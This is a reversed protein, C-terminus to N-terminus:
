TGFSLNYFISPEDLGGESQTSWLHCPAYSIFRWSIMLSFAIEVSCPKFVFNEHSGPELRSNLHGKKVYSYNDMPNGIDGFTKVRGKTPTLFRQGEIINHCLGLYM